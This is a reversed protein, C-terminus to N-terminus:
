GEGMGREQIHVWAKNVGITGDGVLIHIVVKVQGRLAVLGHTFWQMSM